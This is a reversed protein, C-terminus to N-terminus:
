EVMFKGSSLPQGRYQLHFFYLGTNLRQTDILLREGDAYATVNLHQGFINYVSLSVHSSIIHAPLDIFATTACPNPYVFASFDQPWEELGVGSAVQFTKCATHSGFNNTATLCVTYTGTPYTYSPNQLVSTDNNHGFDWFWNTPNNTSLDTFQITPSASSDISFNANPIPVNSVDIGMLFDETLKSRYEGWNNSLIEFSRASFPPTIDRSLTIDAGGMYWAIYVGGSTIVINNNQPTVVNYAGTVVNAPTVFVSDLLVGPSGNPGSDDYIMASFGVPVAANAGIHFRTAEIKVPYVPPEIYVGIGGNGGSWNLGFGDPVGDSYDLTYQAQNTNISIIKQTKRNNVQVMDGTIGQVRTAFTYISPFQSFFSNSFTITTDEGPLLAPVASNGNSLASTGSYVTDTVSFTSLPQNGFNKVNAKLTIPQNSVRVFYGGNQENNNWNVGGDTVAYTVNSPYYYKITFLNSPVVDIMTQLGLVGTINEIGIANDIPLTASGANMSQYNFTISNDSALWIIQFTNSGSYSNGGLVWYPVNVFSVILSDNNALWWVKGPNNAGAFNLDSLHPAIWNNAGAPSPISQPFPSAINAGNFSIYGNSGIWFQTIPYWYFQFGQPLQFPGVVNDDGLGNVENGRNVIDVWQYVPPSVTHNSNKWTYGYADPGGSTQAYMGFLLMTYASILLTKKM